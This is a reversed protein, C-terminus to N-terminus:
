DFRSTERDGDRFSDLQKITMKFIEDNFRGIKEPNPLSDLNKKMNQFDYIELVAKKEIATM